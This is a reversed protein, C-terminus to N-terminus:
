SERGHKVLEADKKMDALLKEVEDMPEWSLGNFMREALAAIRVAYKSHARKKLLGEVEYRLTSLVQDITANNTGLAENVKLRVAEAEKLMEDAEAIARACKVGYEHQAARLTTFKVIDEERRRGHWQMGHDEYGRMLLKLLLGVDPSFENYRAGKLGHWGKEGKVVLGCGDPVEAAKVLGAPAAFYLQNCNKWYGAYKGSNVDSWFDARDVKVEYIKFTPRTFSKRVTLVDAIQPRDFMVSGLPLAVWAMWDAGELFKALEISLEKHSASM